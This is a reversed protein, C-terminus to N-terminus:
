SALEMEVEVAEVKAAIYEDIWKPLIRRNGGDKISKLEGSKVLGKVKSPSYGLEAAAQKVTFWRPKVM